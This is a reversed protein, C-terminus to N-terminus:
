SLGAFDYHNTIHRAPMRVPNTHPSPNPDGFGVINRCAFLRSNICFARGNSDKVNITYIMGNGIYANMQAGRESLSPKVVMYNYAGPVAPSEVYAGPRRIKGILDTYFTVLHGDLFRLQVYM